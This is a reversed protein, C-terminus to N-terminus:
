RGARRGNPKTIERVEVRAIRDGVDRGYGLWSVALTRDTTAESVMTGNDAVVCWGRWAKMKVVKRAPRTM